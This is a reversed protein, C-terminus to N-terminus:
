AARRTRDAGRAGILRVTERTVAFMRGIEANSFGSKTLTEIMRAQTLSLKAAQSRRTNEKPTVAELHDPNVCLRNRCLHDIQFGAPIPGKAQEYYYRHALMDKGGARVMGYGTAKHGKLQWIWCKSKFGKDEERYRDSKYPKSRTMGTSNHGRIFRMPQGKIRGRSRVTRAAIPAPQGCGCQCLGDM